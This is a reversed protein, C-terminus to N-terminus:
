TPRGKRGVRARGGVGMVAIVRLAFPRLSQSDFFTFALKDTAGEPCTVVDLAVRVLDHEPLDLLALTLQPDPSHVTM